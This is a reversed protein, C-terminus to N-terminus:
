ARGQKAVVIGELIYEPHANMPLGPVKPSIRDLLQGAFYGRIPWPLALRRDLFHRLVAVEAGDVASVDWTIVQELPVTVPAVPESDASRGGFRERAVHTGAALDGLRQDERTCVIAISGVVYFLPLFDVIRLLNRVCSTVFDIPEGNRGIVRLGFAAKGPTRGSALTEFPIDYAFLVLFDLVVVLAVVWGSADAGTAISAGFTLAFIIVLKILTDIIQAVFRSGLGALVIELEIGEPTAVVIRNDLHV